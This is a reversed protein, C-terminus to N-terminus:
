ANLDLSFSLAPDIMNFFKVVTAKEASRMMIYTVWIVLHLSNASINGFIIAVVLKSLSSRFLTFLMIDTM